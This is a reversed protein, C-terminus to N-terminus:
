RTDDRELSADLTAHITGKQAHYEAIDQTLLECARDWEADASLDADFDRQEPHLDVADEYQYIRTAHSVPHYRYHIPRELDFQRATLQALVWAPRDVGQADLALATTDPILFEKM